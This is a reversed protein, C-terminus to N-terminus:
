NVPHWEMNLQDITHVFNHILWILVFRSIMDVHLMMDYM